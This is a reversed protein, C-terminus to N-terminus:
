EYARNRIPKIIVKNQTIEYNFNAIYGLGKLVSALTENQYHAEIGKHSLRGEVEIEVGYWAELQEIIEEFHQAKVYLIGDKWGLIEKEHFHTKEIGEGQRVVAMESPLLLQTESGKEVQVKGHVLAIEINNNSKEKINFATGLVRTKVGNSEVVFPQDSPTVEFFAEGELQVYRVSDDLFDSRYVVSSRSNLKVLSGDPLTLALKQGAKSEKVVWAQATAQTTASSAPLLYYALATLGVVAAISAAVRGAETRIHRWVSHAVTPSAQGSTGKVQARLRSFVLQLSQKEQEEDTQDEHNDARDNLFAELEQQSQGSQLWTNLEELESPSCLGKRHKAILNAIHCPPHKM